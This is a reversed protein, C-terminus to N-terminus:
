QGLYILYFFGLISTILLEFGWVKILKFKRVLKREVFFLFYSLFLLISLALHSKFSSIGQALDIIILAIWPFLFLYPTIHIM